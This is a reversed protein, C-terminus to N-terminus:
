RTGARCGILVDGILVPCDDVVGEALQVRGRGLAVDRGESGVKGSQGSVVQSGARNIPPPDLLELLPGREGHRDDIGVAPDASSWAWRSQRRVRHAPGTTAGSTGVVSKREGGVSLAVPSVGM